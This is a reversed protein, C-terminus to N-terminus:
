IHSDSKTPHESKVVMFVEVIGIDGFGHGVEPPSPM